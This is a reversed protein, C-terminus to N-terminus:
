TLNKQKINLKIESQPVSMKATIKITKLSNWVKEGGSSEIHNEIIEDITQAKLIGTSAISTLIFTFVIIKKPKMDFTKVPCRNGYWASAMPCYVALRFIQGIVRSREVPFYQYHECEKFMLLDKPNM